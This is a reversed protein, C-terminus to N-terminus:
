NEYIIDLEDLGNVQIVQQEDVANKDNANEDDHIKM